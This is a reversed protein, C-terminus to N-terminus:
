NFLEMDLNFSSLLISISIHDRPVIHELQWALRTGSGEKRSSRMKSKPGREFTIPASVYQLKQYFPCFGFHSNNSIFGGISGATFRGGSLSHSDSHVANFHTWVLETIMTPWLSTLHQPSMRLLLVRFFLFVQAHLIPVQPLRLSEVLRESCLSLCMHRRLATSLCHCSHADTCQARVARTREGQIDPLYKQYQDVESSYITFALRKLLMARQELEADRNTFLSLSSSQAVAVRATPLCCATM